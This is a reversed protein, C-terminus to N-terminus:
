EMQLQKWSTLIPLFGPMSGYIQSIIIFDYSYFFYDAPPTHYMFSSSGALGQTFGANTFLFLSCCLLRVFPWLPLFFAPLSIKSSSKKFSPTTLMAGHKQSTVYSISQSYPMWGFSTKPSRSFFATKVSSHLSHWIAMQFTTVPVSTFPACIM